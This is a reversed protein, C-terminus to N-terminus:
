ASREKLILTPAKNLRLFYDRIGVVMEYVRDENASKVLYSNAGLEYAGRVIRDDEEATLVVVPIPKLQRNRRILPLLELGGLGPLKLDMVILAPLPWAARDAYENVGQLYALAKDGTNLHIIPNLVGARGFKRILLKADSETDEVLLIPAVALNNQNKEPKM